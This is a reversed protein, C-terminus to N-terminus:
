RLGHSASNFANPTAHARHGPVNPLLWAPATTCIRFSCPPRSKVRRLSRPVRERLSLAPTLPFLADFREANALAGPNSASRHETGQSRAQREKGGCGRKEGTVPREAFAEPLQLVQILRQLAASNLRVLLRHRQAERRGVIWGPGLPRQM